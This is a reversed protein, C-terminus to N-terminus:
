EDYRWRTPHRTFDAEPTAIVMSAVVVFLPGTGDDPFGEGYKAVYHGLVRGVAGADTVLRARGHVVLADAANETAV